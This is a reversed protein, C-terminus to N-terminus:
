SLSSDEMHKTMSHLEVNFLTFYITLLTLESESKTKVIITPKGQEDFQM